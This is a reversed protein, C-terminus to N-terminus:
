EKLAKLIASPIADILDGAIISHEGMKEKLIEGALSHIYVGSVAAALPTTKQALFGIILGTLVDGSGATALGSNVHPNLWFSGDQESTVTPAGKLVLIVGWKSAYRRSVEVKNREIDRAN